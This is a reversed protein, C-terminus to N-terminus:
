GYIRRLCVELAILTPEQMEANVETGGAVADRVVGLWGMHEGSGLCDLDPFFYTLALFKAYDFSNGPEYDFSGRGALVMHPSIPIGAVSVNNAEKSLSLTDLINADSRLNSSSHHWFALPTLVFCQGDPESLCTQKRSKLVKSISQELKLTSELIQHNLAGSDSDEALPSQILVREV